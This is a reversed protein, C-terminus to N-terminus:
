RDTVTEFSVGSCPVALNAGPYGRSTIERAANRDFTGHTPSIAPTRSMPFTNRAKLFKLEAAASGTRPLQTAL